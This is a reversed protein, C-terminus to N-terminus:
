AFNVDIFDIKAKKFLKEIYKIQKSHKKLIMKKAHKGTLQINGKNFFSILREKTYPVSVNVKAHNDLAINRAFKKKAIEFETEAIFKPMKIRNLLDIYEGTQLKLYASKFSTNSQNNQLTSNIKM